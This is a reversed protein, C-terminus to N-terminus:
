VQSCALAKRTMTSLPFKDARDMPVWCFGGPVRRLRASVVTVTIDYRTISHRFKGITALVAAGPLQTADPLEWFGRMRGQGTRKWLLLSGKREIWLLTKTERVQAAPRSKAPLVDQKGLRLAECFRSIPCDPCKPARPLCLTAGLEMMAQNFAGPRKRDLLRGALGRLRDKTISSRIDGSDASVRSLVRLVNGDLVAHPLGFAISAVAAATYDGVGPLRRIADYGAPFGGLEVIQGAAKRMNRARSYYGLGSWLALLADEPADALSAVGPFRDLFRQYYPVVAAVRTQQLMIESVWVAYPDKTRRWPLDQANQAFWDLLARQIPAYREQPKM